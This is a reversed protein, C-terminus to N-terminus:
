PKKTKTDEPPSANHGMNILTHLAMFLTAVSKADTIEGASVRAMAESLRMVEVELFEDADLRARAPRLDWAAYLRIVENTFGPTTWIETLYRLSGASYGTEEILERAACAEWSADAPDRIGAPVEYLYGGTAYRYQRILLVRPDDDTHPADLFPLVASAGRHEMLELRGHSGDPFRVTDVHLNVVRGEYVTRREVRGPAPAGSPEAEM